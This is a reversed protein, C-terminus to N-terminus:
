QNSRPNNLRESIRDSLEDGLQLSRLLALINEEVNVNLHIPKGRQFDPNKGQITVNLKLKGDPSYNTKANLHNYNFNDLAQLLLKINANSQAMSKVRETAAYRLVGGPLRAKIQGNLMSLGASSYDFPLEGDILGTGSLGQSQELELLKKLDLNKVRLNFPNHSRSFDINIIDASLTGGLSQAQMNKIMIVPVNDTRLKFDSLLEIDTIEIGPNLQDIQVSAPRKFSLVDTGQLDLQTSLGKFLTKSYNGGLKDISLNLKKFVRLKKAEAKGTNSEQQWALHGNAALRGANLHLPLSTKVLLRSPLDAKMSFDVPLIEYNLRGINTALDHRMDFRGNIDGAAAELKGKAVVINNKYTLTSQLKNMNIGKDDMMLTLGSFGTQMNILLGAHNIRFDQISLLAGSSKATLEEVNIKLPKINLKLPGCSLSNDNISYSCKASHSLTSAISNIAYDRYKLASVTFQTNPNFTVNLVDNRWEINGKIQANMSDAHIIGADSSNASFEFLSTLNIGQDIDFQLSNLTLKILQKADDNGYQIKLMKQASFQVNEAISSEGALGGPLSISLTQKNNASLSNLISEDLNILKKIDPICMLRSDKAINWKIAREQLSVGVTLKANVNKAYGQWEQMVMDINLDADINAAQWWQKDNVDLEVPLKLSMQLDLLGKADNVQEAVGWAKLLGFGSTLDIHTKIQIQTHENDITNENVQLKMWPVPHQLDSLSLQLSGSNTLKIDASVDTYSAQRIDLKSLVEDDVVEIHGTVDILSSSKDAQEHVVHINKFTLSRFPIQAAHPLLDHINITGTKDVLGAAPTIVIDTTPMDIRDISGSLLGSISYELGVNQLSIDIRRQQRLTSFKLTKIRGHRLGITEIMVVPDIMGSNILTFKIGTAILIPLNTVLALLLVTTVTLIILGRRRSM